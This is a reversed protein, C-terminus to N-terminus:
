HQATFLRDVNNGLAINQSFNSLQNKAFSSLNLGLLGKECTCEISDPNQM